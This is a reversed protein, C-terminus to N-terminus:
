KTGKLYKAALKLKEPSDGFWAIGRNCKHCLLGRVQRPHKHDHDIHLRRTKREAGCIMCQEGHIDCLLDYIDLKEARTLKNFDKKLKIKLKM